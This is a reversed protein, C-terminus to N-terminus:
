RCADDLWYAVPVFWFAPLTSVSRRMVRMWAGGPPADEMVNPQHVERGRYTLEKIRGLRVGSAQLKSIFSACAAELRWRRLACFIIERNPGVDLSRRNRRTAGM